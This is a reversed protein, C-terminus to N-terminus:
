GSGLGERGCGVEWVAAAREVTVISVRRRPTREATASRASILRSHVITEYRCWKGAGWSHRGHVIRSEDSRVWRSWTTAAVASPKPSRRQASARPPGIFTWLVSATKLSSFSRTPTPCATPRVGGRRAAERM